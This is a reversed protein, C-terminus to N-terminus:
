KSPKWGIRFWFVVCHNAIFRALFFCQIGCAKLVEYWTKGARCNTQSIIAHSKDSSYIVVWGMLISFTIFYKIKITNYNEFNKNFYFPLVSVLIINKKCSVLTAWTITFSSISIRFREILEIYIEFHRWPLNPITRPTTGWAASYQDFWQSKRTPMWVALLTKNAYCLWIWRNARSGACFTARFPERQHGFRFM